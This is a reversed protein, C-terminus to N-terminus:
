VASLAVQSVPLARPKGTSRISISECAGAWISRETKGDIDRRRAAGNYRPLERQARGSVVGGPRSGLGGAMDSVM